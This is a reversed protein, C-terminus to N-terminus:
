PCRRPVYPPQGGLPRWVWFTANADSLIDVQHIYYGTADPVETPLFLRGRVQGSSNIQQTIGYFPANPPVKVGQTPGAPIGSGHLVAQWDHAAPAGETRNILSFFYARPNALVGNVCAPSNPPVPGPGPGPPPPPPPAAAPTRFSEVRSWQGAVRGNFGAVRWYFLTNSPLEPVTTSTTGSAHRETGQQVLTRTFAQDFAVEFWYEVRGVRGDIRGNTVTLTPRASSTTAGSVPSVPGPAEMLIPVVLDFRATSSFTSENAGDDAKVRWFYTRDPALAADVVVSTQSGTAPTLRGNAYLKNAFGADSALEVVYWFPREGNSSANNFVLRLPETNVVESGNVPSVPTPPSISVGAIPGAVNPSLPSRSKEAECASVALVALGAIASKTALIVTRNM